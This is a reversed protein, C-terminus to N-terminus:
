RLTESLLQKAKDECGRPLGIYEPFDEACAIVRAKDRVSMRMKQARYFEPNAFAALSRLRNLVPPPLDNKTVYFLNSRVARVKEPLNSRLEDTIPVSGSPLRMWPLEGASPYDRDESGSLDPQQLVQGLPHELERRLRDVDHASLRVVNALVEWQDAYPEGRDDLFATNGYSRASKQLPLAILNGFGAKPLTDQNPFLRDFSEFRLPYRGESAHALITCGFDRAPAAPVPEAFFHWVHAGNGSRSRERYAPIGHESCVNMYRASDELWREGDFDLALLCCSEDRRLPYVGVVARGALHERVVERTLPLFRKEGLARCAERPRRCISTDSDHIHAPSYGPEGSRSEWRLAYVDARGVFLRYFIEIKEEPSRTESGTLRASIRAGGGAANRRLRNIESRLYENEKRLRTCEARLRDVESM